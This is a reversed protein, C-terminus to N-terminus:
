ILAMLPIRLIKDVTQQLRPLLFKLHHPLDQRHHHYAQTSDSKSSLLKPLKQVKLIKPMLWYRSIDTKQAQKGRLLKTIWICGM